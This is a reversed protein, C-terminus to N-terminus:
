IMCENKVVINVNVSQLPSLLSELFEEDTLVAVSKYRNEFLINMIQETLVPDYNILLHQGTRINYLHVAQRLLSSYVVAQLQHEFTLQSTCKLEWYDLHLSGPSQPSQTKVDIRGSVHITGWQISSYQHCRCCKPCIEGLEVEIRTKDNVEILSLSSRVDDIIKSTIWWPEDDLQPLRHHIGSTSAYYAKVLHFNTATMTTQRMYKKIYDDNSMDIIKRLQDFSGIDEFNIAPLYIGNLDSIEEHQGTKKSVVIDPIDISWREENIETTLDTLIVGISSEYIPKIHKVLDTTTTKHWNTPPHPPKCKTYIEDTIYEVNEPSSMLARRNVWSFPEDANDEFVWLEELARTLGVYFTNPCTDQQEDKANYKYYSSNFGMVLVLPRELGKSQHFTTIVVKGVSADGSSQESSPMYCPIGYSVLMNELRKVPGRSTNVSPALIFVDGPSYERTINIKHNIENALLKLGWNYISGSYYKVPKDSQKGSVIRNYGIVVSNLFNAIRSTLRHTRTLNLSRCDHNFVMDSMTLFREDAGKYKYICQFQDGFTCIIPRSKMDQLVKNIFHYYHLTMDQCEDICLIDVKPLVSQPRLNGVVIRKLPEDGQHASRDYYNVAMSHYSHVEIKGRSKARVEDKLRSSYTIMLIRKSTRDALNLITTTKGSGPVADIMTNNGDIISQIIESQEDTLMVIIRM